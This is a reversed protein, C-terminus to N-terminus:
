APKPETRVRSLRVPTSTTSGLPRVEVYFGHRPTPKFPARTVEAVVRLANDGYGKWPRGDWRQHAEVTLYVTDGVDLTAEEPACEVHFPRVNGDTRTTEPDIHVADDAEVDGGCDHCTYTQM